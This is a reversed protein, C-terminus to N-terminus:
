VQRLLEDLFRSQAANIKKRATEVDFFDARDVEPFTASKGSRPPWEMEFTNSTIGGPDCDGEFAWAHVVKGSKQTVKGLPLYPQDPAIGTEERFERQAAALLEEGAEPLGKPISWAGDDKNKWLPGGPHVLLVQLAGHHRRYMLLGASLKVTVRRALSRSRPARGRAVRPPPRRAARPRGPPRPDRPRPRRSGVPARGQSPRRQRRQLRRAGQCASRPRRSRAGLARLELRAGRPRVRRPRHDRPHRSRERARRARPRRQSRPGRPDRRHLRGHGHRRRHGFPGLQRARRGVDAFPRTDGPLRPVPQGLSFLAQRARDRRPRRPTGGGGARAPSCRGLAAARFALVVRHVRAGAACGSELARRAPAAARALDHGTTASSSHRSACKARWWCRAVRAVWPPIPTAAPARLIPIPPPPITTTPAVSPEAVVAAPVSVRSASIKTPSRRPTPVPAAPCTWAASTKAARVRSGATGAGPAPQSAEM